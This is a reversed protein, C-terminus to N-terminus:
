EHEQRANMRARRRWSAMKWWSQSVKGLKEQLSDVGEERQRCERRGKQDLLVLYRRGETHSSSTNSMGDPISYRNSPAHTNQPSLKRAFSTLTRPNISHFPFAFQRRISSSYLSLSVFLAYLVSARFPRQYITSVSTFLPFPLQTSSCM